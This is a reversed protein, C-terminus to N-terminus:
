RGSGSMKWSMAPWTGICVSAAKASVSAANPSHARAAASRDRSIVSGSCRTWRIVLTMLAIARKKQNVM